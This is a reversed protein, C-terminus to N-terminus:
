LSPTLLITLTDSYSGAVLPQGGQLISVTVLLSGIAADPTDITAPLESAQSNNNRGAWATQVQYDLLTRFSNTSLAASGELRMGGSASQVTVSHTVTCIVPIALQMDAARPIGTGTADILSTVQIASSSLASSSLSTNNSSIVSAPGRIVCLGPATGRFETATNAVNDNVVQASALTPLLAYIACIVTLGKIHLPETM